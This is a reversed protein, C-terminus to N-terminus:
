DHVIPSAPVPFRPSGIVGLSQARRVAALRDHAGLKRYANGLHKHVTRPSVNLRAAITRALLGDSVMTLVEVERLTLGARHANSNCPASAYAYARHDRTLRDIAMLPKQVSDLLHMQRVSFRQPAALVILRLLTDHVGHLPLQAVDECDLLNPQMLDALSGKWRDQEVKYSLCTPRRDQVLHHLLMPFVNPLREVVMKLRRIDVTRPWCAMTCIQTNTDFCIFAASTAELDTALRTCLRYPMLEGDAVSQIFNMTADLVIGLCWQENCM